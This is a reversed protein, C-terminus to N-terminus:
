PGRDYRRFFYRLYGASERVSSYLDLPEFYLAHASYIEPVGFRQLALRARPIHFYQSVVFVSTFGQKRAFEATYRASAYTTDGGHDAIVSSAPIGHAVLYDRMVAAEDFGEKGIGGSAIVRPFYGDHYLEITRDLRTRLRSSPKGDPNIKNGLVLAVDAKGLQDHLGAIAIALAGFLFLLGIGAFPILFRKSRQLLKRPHNFSLSRLDTVM